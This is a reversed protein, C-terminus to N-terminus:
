YRMRLMLAPANTTVTVTGQEDTDHPVPVWNWEDDVVKDAGEVQFNATRTGLPHLLTLRYVDDSMGIGAISRQEETWAAPDGPLNGSNGDSDVYYGMNDGAEAPYDGVPLYFYLNSDGGGHGVGEYSYTAGTQMNTLTISVSNTGDVANSVVLLFAARGGADIPAGYIANASTKISGGILINTGIEPTAGGAGIDQASSSGWFQQGRM